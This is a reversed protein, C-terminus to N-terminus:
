LNHLTVGCNDIPNELLHTLHNWKDFSSETESSLIKNIFSLIMSTQKELHYSIPFSELKNSEPLAEEIFSHMSQRKQPPYLILDDIGLDEHFSRNKRALYIINSVSDSGLGLPVQHNLSKHSFKHLYHGSEQYAFLLANSFEKIGKNLAQFSPKNINQKLVWSGPCRESWWGLVSLIMSHTLKLHTMESTSKMQDLQNSTIYAQLKQLLIHVEIDLEHEEESPKKKIDSRLQFFRRKLKEWKELKILSNDPVPLTHSGIQIALYLHKMKEWSDNNM